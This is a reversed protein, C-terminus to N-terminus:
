VDKTRRQGLRSRIPTGGGAFFSDNCMEKQKREKLKQLVGPILLFCANEVLRLPDSPLRQKSFIVMGVTDTTDPPRTAFVRVGRFELFKKRECLRRILK